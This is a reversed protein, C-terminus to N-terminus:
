IINYVQIHNMIQLSSGIYSFRLTINYNIVLNIDFFFKIHFLLVRSMISM